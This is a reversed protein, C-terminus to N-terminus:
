LSGSLRANDRAIEMADGGEEGEEDEEEEREDQGWPAEEKATRALEAWETRRLLRLLARGSRGVCVMFDELTFAEKLLSAQAPPAAFRGRPFYEHLKTRPDAVREGIQMSWTYCKAALHRFRDANVDAQEARKAAAEPTSALLSSSFTTTTTTNSSSSPPPFAALSPSALSHGVASPSVFADELCRATDYLTQSLPLLPPPSPLIFRGYLTM